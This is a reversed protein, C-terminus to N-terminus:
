FLAVCDLTSVRVRAQNGSSYPVRVGGAGVPTPAAPKMLAAPNVSM